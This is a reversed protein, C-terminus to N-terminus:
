RLSAPFSLRREPDGLWNVHRRMVAPPLLIHMRPCLIHINAIFRFSGFFDNLFRKRLTIIIFDQLNPALLSIIQKGAQSLTSIVFPCLLKSERKCGSHLPHWFNGLSRRNWMSLVGEKQKLHRVSTQDYVYLLVAESWKFHGFCSVEIIHMQQYKWLNLSLKEFLDWAQQDWTQLDRVNGPPQPKSNTPNQQLEWRVSFESSPGVSSEKTSASGIM